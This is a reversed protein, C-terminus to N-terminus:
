PRIVVTEPLTREDEHMADVRARWWDCSHMFDEFLRRLQTASVGTPADQWLFAAASSEGDEPVCPEEGYALTAEEKLMRGVAYGALAPLAAADQTLACSLVVRGDLEGCRVEAGDVRLLCSAAGEPIEEPYGIARVLRWAATPVSQRGPKREPEDM